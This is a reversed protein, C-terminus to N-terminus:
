LRPRELYVGEVSGAYPRDDRGVDEAIPVLQPRQWVAVEEDKARGAAVVHVQRRVAARRVGRHEVAHRLLERRGPPDDPRPVAAVVDRQRRRAAPVEVDELIRYPEGVAPPRVVE